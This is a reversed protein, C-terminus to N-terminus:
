SENMHKVWMYTPMVKLKGRRILFIMDISPQSTTSEDIITSVDDVSVCTIKADKLQHRWCNGGDCCKELNEMEIQETIYSFLSRDSRSQAISMTKPCLTWLLGDLLHTKDAEVFTTQLPFYFPRNMPLDIGMLLHQVMLPTSECEAESLDFKLVNTVDCIDLKFVLRHFRAALEVLCKRLEVFWSTKIRGRVVSCAFVCQCSPPVNVVTSNIELGKTEITLNVLNPADIEFEIKSGSPGFTLDRLTGSSIRLKNDDPSIRSANFYLSELSPFKSILEELTSRSILEDTPELNLSKVCPASVVKLFECNGTFHLTQLLTASSLQLLQRYGRFCLSTLSPFDSASIDLSDIGGIDKLSLKELRRANALCSPFSQQSVRVRQLTLEQLNDLCIAEYNHLQTLDFGRLHLFKTRGCNLLMGGQFSSFGNSYIKLVVSLPSRSHSDDVGISASSLLQYFEQVLDRSCQLSITFSDLLLPVALLRKSTAAAFSQFRTGKFEIYRHRAHDEFEVLPYSRWLHIWKRSLISTRAAEEHSNLSGLILHIIEEPLESIRDAAAAM